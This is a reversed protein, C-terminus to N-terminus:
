RSENEKQVNVKSKCLVSQSSMLMTHATLPKYTHDGSLLYVHGFLKGVKSTVDGMNIFSTFGKKREEDILEWESIVKEKLGPACVSISGRESLWKNEYIFTYAALAGGLSFGYVRAAKGKAKVAKLWQNIKKQSRQFASFGPGAIDLDSMLSAWGRESDLSFDTGRFILISDVGQHEPVLGFAPMGHWINFICSVNFRELRVEGDVEIPIAISQGVKLDHYALAKTIVEAIAIQLYDSNVSKDHLSKFLCSLINLDEKSITVVGVIPHKFSFYGYNEVFTKMEPVIREIRKEEIPTTLAYTKYKESFSWNLFQDLNKLTKIRVKNRWTLPRDYISPPPCGDEDLDAFTSSNFLLAVLFFSFKKNLQRHFFGILQQVLNM